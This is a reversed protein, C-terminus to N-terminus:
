TGFVRHRNGFMVRRPQGFQQRPEGAAAGRMQAQVIRHPGFGDVCGKGHCLHCKGCGGAHVGSSRQNDYRHDVMAYGKGMLRQAARAGGPDIVAPRLSRRRIGAARNEKAPFEGSGPDLRQLHGMGSTLLRDVPLRTKQTARVQWRHRQRARMGMARM